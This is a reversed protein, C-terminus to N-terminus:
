TFSPLKSAQWDPPGWRKSSHYLFWYPHTRIDYGIKRRADRERALQQVALAGAGGVTTAAGITLIEAHEVLGTIALGVGVALQPLGGGILRLSASEKAVKTEIDRLERKVKRVWKRRAFESISDPTKGEGLDRALEDMERLLRERTGQLQGRMEFLADWSARPFAPMHCLFTNALWAQYAVARDESNALPGPARKKPGGLTFRTFGELHDFTDQDLVPIVELTSVDGRMFDLSKHVVEDYSLVSFARMDFGEALEIVGRLSRKNPPPVNVMVAGQERPDVGDLLAADKLQDLCRRLKREYREIARDHRIVHEEYGRAAALEYLCKQLRKQYREDKEHARMALLTYYLRTSALQVNESYLFSAKAAISDSYVNEETASFVLATDFELDLHKNSM